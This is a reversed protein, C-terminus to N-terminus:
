MPWQQVSPKQSAWSSALHKSCTKVLKLYLLIANEISFFAWQTHFPATRRMSSIYWMTVYPLIRLPAIECMVCFFLCKVELMASRIGSLLVQLLPPKCWFTVRAKQGWLGTDSSPRNLRQAELIRIHGLHECCTWGAQFVSLVHEGRPLCRIKTHFPVRWRLPSIWGM